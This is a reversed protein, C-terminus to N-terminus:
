PAPNPNGRLDITETGAPLKPLDFVNAPLPKNYEILKTRGVLQWPGRTDSGRMPPMYMDMSLVLNTSVDAFYVTRVRTAVKTTWRGGTLRRRASNLREIARAYEPPVRLDAIVEVRDAPRGRWSARGTTVEVNTANPADTIARPDVANAFQVSPPFMGEPLIILQHILPRYEYVAHDRHIYSTGGQLVKSAQRTLWGECTVSGRRWDPSTEIVYHVSGVRGMADHIAAFAMSDLGRPGLHTSLAIGIAILGVMAYRIRPASLVRGLVDLISRRTPLRDVVSQTFADGPSPQPVLETSLMADMAPQEEFERRCRECGLVHSELVALEEPSINTDVYRGILRRIGDCQM